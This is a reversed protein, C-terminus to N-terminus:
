DPKYEWKFWRNPSGRHYMTHILGLREWIFILQNALQISSETERKDIWEVLSEVKNSTRSYYFEEYLKIVDTNPDALDIM